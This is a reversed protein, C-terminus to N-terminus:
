EKDNQTLPTLYPNLKKKQVKIDLKVLVIQFQWKSM